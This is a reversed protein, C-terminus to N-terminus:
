VRVRLAIKLCNLEIQADYICIYLYIVLLGQLFMPHAHHTSSLFSVM